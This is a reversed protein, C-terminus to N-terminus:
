EGDAVATWVAVLGLLLAPAFPLALMAVLFPLGAQGPAAPFVYIVGPIGLFAVAVVAVLAWGLRGLGPDPEPTTVTPDADAGADDSDNERAQGPRHVYGDTDDSSV